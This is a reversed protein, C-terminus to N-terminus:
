LVVAIHREPPHTLLVAEAGALTSDQNSHNHTRIKQDDILSRFIAQLFYEQLPGEAFLLLPKIM